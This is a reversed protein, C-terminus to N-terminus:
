FFATACFFFSNGVNICARGVLGYSPNTPLSPNSPLGDHLPHDLFSFLFFFYMSAYTGEGLQKVLVYKGVSKGKKISGATPTYGAPRAM